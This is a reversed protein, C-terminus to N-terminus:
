GAGLAARQREVVRRPWCCGAEGILRDPSLQRAYVPLTSRGIRRGASASWSGDAGHVGDVKGVWDPLPVKTMAKGAAIDEASWPRWKM